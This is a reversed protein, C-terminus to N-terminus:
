RVVPPNRRIPSSQHIKKEVVEGKKQAADQVEGLIYCYQGHCYGKLPCDGIPFGMREAIMQVQAEKSCREVTM